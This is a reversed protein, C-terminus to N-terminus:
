PQVEDLIFRRIGLRYQELADLRYQGPHKAYRAFEESHLLNVVWAAAGFRNLILSSKGTQRPGFLFFSRTEPLQITRNIM